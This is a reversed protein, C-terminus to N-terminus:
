RQVRAQSRLWPTVPGMVKVTSWPSSNPPLDQNLTCLQALEDGAEVTAEDLVVLPVGLLVGVQLAGVAGVVLFKIDRPDQMDGALVLQDVLGQAVQIVVVVHPLM